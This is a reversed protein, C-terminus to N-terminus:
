TYGYMRAGAKYSTKNPLTYTVYPNVHMTQCNFVYMQLNLMQNPLMHGVQCKALCCKITMARESRPLSSSLHTSQEAQVDNGLNLTCEQGPRLVKKQFRTYTVHPNVHRTEWNFVYMQLNLMQSPLMDGLQCKALRRCKITIARVKTLSSSLHM